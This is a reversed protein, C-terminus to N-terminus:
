MLTEVLLTPIEEVFGKFLLNKNFGKYRKHIVNTYRIDNLCHVSCM